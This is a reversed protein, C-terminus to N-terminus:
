VQRLLPFASCHSPLGARLCQMSLRLQPMSSVHFAIAYSLETHMALAFRLPACSLCVASLLARACCSASVRRCLLAHHPFASANTAFFRAAPAHSLLACSRPPSARSLIAAAISQVSPCRCPSADSLRPTARFLVGFACRALAFSRCASASSAGAISIFQARILALAFFATFFMAAAFFRAPRRAPAFHQPSGRPCQLASVHTPLAASCAAVRLFPM